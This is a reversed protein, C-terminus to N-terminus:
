RVFIDKVAFSLKRREGKTVLELRLSRHTEKGNLKFQYVYSGAKGFPDGETWRGGGLDKGDPDLAYISEIFPDTTNAAARKYSLKATFDRSTSMQLGTLRVSIGHGIDKFDEMVVAPLTTRDRELAIVVDTDLVLTRLHTSDMPLDLRALKVQGIQDWFANYKAQRSATSKLSVSAGKDDTTPGFRLQEGVAVVDSGSPAAVSGELSLSYKIKKSNNYNIEATSAFKALALTYDESTFQPGQAKEGPQGALLLAGAALLVALGLFTRCTMITGKM